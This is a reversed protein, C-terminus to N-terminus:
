LRMSPAVADVVNNTYCPGEGNQLTGVVGTAGLGRVVPIQMNILADAVLQSTRHEEFATEPNAHIDHRWNLMQACIDDEIQIERSM